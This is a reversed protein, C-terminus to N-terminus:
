HHALNPIVNLESTQKLLKRINYFMVAVGGIILITGVFMLPTALVYILNEGSLTIHSNRVWIPTTLTIIGMVIM